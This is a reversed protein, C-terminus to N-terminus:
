YKPENVQLIDRTVHQDAATSKRIPCGVRVVGVEDEELAVTRWGDGVHTPIEVQLLVYKRIKQGPAFIANSRVVGENLSITLFSVCGYIM